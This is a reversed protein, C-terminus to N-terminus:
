EVPLFAHISQAIQAAGDAYLMTIHNGDVAVYQADKMMAVTEKALYDPLLPEGLTYNDLGNILMTTHPISEILASWNICSRLSMKNTIM